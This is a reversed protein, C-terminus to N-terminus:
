VSCLVARVPCLYMGALVLLGLFDVLITPLFLLLVVVLLVVVMVLLLLLMLMLCLM